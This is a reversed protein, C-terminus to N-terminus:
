IYTIQQHFTFFNVYRITVLDVANFYAQGFSVQNTDVNYSIDDIALFWTFEFYRKKLHLLRSAVQNPNFVLGLRRTLKAAVLAVVGTALITQNVTTVKAKRRLMALMIVDWEVYWMCPFDDQANEM